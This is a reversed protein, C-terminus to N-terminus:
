PKPYTVTTTVVSTAQVRLGIGQVSVQMTRIGPRHKETALSRPLVEVECMCSPPVPAQPDHTSVNPHIKSKKAQAEVGPKYHKQVHGLSEIHEPHPSVLFYVFFMNFIFDHSRTCPGALGGEVQRPMRREDNACDDDDGYIVMKKMM